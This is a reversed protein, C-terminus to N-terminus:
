PVVKQAHGTTDAIGSSAHRIFRAVAPSTEQAHWVVALNEPLLDTVPILRVDSPMAMADRIRATMFGIAEGSRVVSLLHFIDHVEPGIVIQDAHEQAGLWYEREARDTGAWVAVPVAALEARTVAPREALPHDAALLVVRDQSELVDSDLGDNDFGGLVLAVDAQGAPQPEGRRTSM